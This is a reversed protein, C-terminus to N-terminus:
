APVTKAIIVILSIGGCKLGDGSIIVTPTSLREDNLFTGNTSHLDEVWWQNHHYALRAHRASVTENSIPFDSVPDRGIVVEPQSFRRLAVEDATQIGLELTPIKRQSLTDSRDKLDRWITYLAWGVFGYLALVMLLRLVLVLVGSM